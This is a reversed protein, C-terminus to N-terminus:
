EGGKKERKPFDDCALKNKHETPPPIAGAINSKGMWYRWVYELKAGTM